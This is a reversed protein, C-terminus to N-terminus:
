QILLAAKDEGGANAGGAEGRQRCWCVRTKSTGGPRQRALAGLAKGMRIAAAGAAPGGRAQRRGQRDMGVSSITQCGSCAAGSIHLGQVVRIHCQWWAWSHNDASAAEPQPPWDVPAVRADASNAIKRGEGVPADIRM